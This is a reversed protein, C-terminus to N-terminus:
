ELKRTVGAISAPSADVGHVTSSKIANSGLGATLDDLFSQFIM